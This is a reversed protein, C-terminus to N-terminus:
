RVIFAELPVTHRSFAGTQVDILGATTQTAAVIQRGNPSMRILRTGNPVKAVLEGRGSVIDLRYLEADPAVAPPPDGAM